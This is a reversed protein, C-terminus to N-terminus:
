PPSTIQATATQLTGVVYGAGPDITVTVTESAPASSNHLTAVSITATNQGAPFTATGSLPQFDGTGATGGISYGVTLADSNPFYPRVLTLRAAHGSGEQAIPDSAIIQVTPLTASPAPVWSAADAIVYGSTAANSISVSGSRGAPFPARGLYNWAAGNQTQDLQLSITGLPSIVQVPVQTARNSFSTWRLYVDYDGAAPLDPTFLVSKSGKGANQDHLYNSGWSGPTVVSSAWAGTLTVGAADANDVVTGTVPNLTGLAQADAQLQLALKPYSVQQVPVGDDIAFAAATGAGQAIMMFVPEVRISCFAVHSASLAWPVLLNTCQAARPVIARYSIPYPSALDVAFAGENRAYGNVVVRQCDHVDVAYVGQAIPDPVARANQCDFQTVVYDSLMRRAERVYLQHPWGGTDQFEDTCWGYALMQARTAAPVRLSHGLYYLLGQIYDRHQQEIIARDAYSATAYAASLGTADTTFPGSGNLDTKAHPLVAPYIFSFLDVTLGAASRAEILRGLLEYSAETYGAPADIARRSSATTLCLRYNYGQVLSDATGALGVSGPQVYPLLGSTPDGKVVYPDVKVPFGTLTAAVGALSEGYTASSERGITCSVGAMAMLDGEYTADIFISAAYVTGDDMTLATIQAGSKTVSALRQNFSPTVGVETLMEWFAAEAVSPEFLFRRHIAGYRLGVRQYFEGAVGRLYDTGFKGVDTAGLGGSTMGGVHGHVAVLAVKKGQRAAQVAAVVGGSTGGYICIDSTVTGGAASVALIFSLALLALRRPAKFIEPSVRAMVPAYQLRARRHGCSSTHPRDRSPTTPTTRRSRRWRRSSLWSLGSFLLASSGPEPVATNHFLQLSVQAVTGATVTPNAYTGSHLDAIPGTVGNQTVSQAPGPPNDPNSSNGFLYYTGSDATAGFAYVDSPMLTLAFTPSMKATFPGNPSSFNDGAEAVPASLYLLTSTTQDYVIFKLHGAGQQATFLTFNTVVTPASVIIKGLLGSDAGTLDGPTQHYAQDGYYSDDFILGGLASTAGLVVAIWCAAFRRLLPGNLSKM